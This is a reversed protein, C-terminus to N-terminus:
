ILSWNDRILAFLNTILLIRYVIFAIGCVTYTFPREGPYVHRHRLLASSRTFGKGCVSYTVPREGTLTHQHRRLNKKSKFSQETLFNHVLQHKSLQMTQIFGKGCMSCHSHGRGLTFERTYLSTAQKGSGLGAALAGSCDRTLRFM